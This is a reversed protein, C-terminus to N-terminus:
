SLMDFSGCHNRCYVNNNESDQQSNSKKENKRREIVSYISPADQRSVLHGDITKKEAGDSLIHIIM